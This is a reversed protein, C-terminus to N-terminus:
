HMTVKDYEGNCREYYPSTKRPVIIDIYHPDNVGNIFPVAILHKSSHRLIVEAIDARITIKQGPILSNINEKTLYEMLLVGKFKGISSFNNIQLM